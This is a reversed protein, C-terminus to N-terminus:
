DAIGMIQRAEEFSAAYSAFEFIGTMELFSKKLSNLGFIVIEGHYDEVIKLCADLLLAAAPSNIASCGKLDTIFRRTGNKLSNTVIASFEEGTEKNFYGHQRILMYDSITETVISPM